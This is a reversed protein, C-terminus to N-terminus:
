YGAGSRAGHGGTFRTGAKRRLELEDLLTAIKKEEVDWTYPTKFNQPITKRTEAFFKIIAAALNEPTIAGEFVLGMGTEEVVQRLSPRDPVILPVGALLSEFLKNPSAYTHSLNSNYIPIINADTEKLTPVLNRYAIKPFLHFNRINNKEAYTSMEDKIGGGGIIVIHINAPLMAAARALEMVGRKKGLVSGHFSVIYDDPGIGLKKRLGVAKGSLANKMPVNLVIMTKRLGYKNRFYNEYTPNTTIFAYAKRANNNEMHFSRWYAILQLLKSRLKRQECMRERLVPLMIEHSDYIFPINRKRSYAVAAELTSLDNAYVMDFSKNRMAHSFYMTLRSGYLLKLSADQIFHAYKGLLVRPLYLIVRAVFLFPISMRKMFLFWKPSMASSLMLTPWNGIPMVVTPHGGSLAMGQPSTGTPALIHVNLKSKDIDILPADIKEPIDSTKAVWGYVTVEHGSQLMAEVTRNVRVDSVFVNDVLVCIKM